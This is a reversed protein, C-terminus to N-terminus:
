STARASRDRPALTGSIANVPQPWAASRSRANVAPNSTADPSLLEPVTHRDRLLDEVPAYQGLGMIARDLTLLEHESPSVQIM